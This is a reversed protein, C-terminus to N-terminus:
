WQYQNAALLWLQLQIVHWCQIYSISLCMVVPKREFAFYTCHWQKSKWIAWKLSSTSRKCGNRSDYYNLQYPRKARNSMCNRKKEKCNSKSKWILPICCQDRAITFVGGDSLCVTMWRTVTTFVNDFELFVLACRIM